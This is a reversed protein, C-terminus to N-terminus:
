ESNMWEVLADGAITLVQGEAGLTQAAVLYGRETLLFAFHRAGEETLFPESVFQPEDRAAQPLSGQITWKVM